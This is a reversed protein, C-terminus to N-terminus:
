QSPLPWAKRARIAQDIRCSGEIQALMRRVRSVPHQPFEHDYRPDDPNWNGGIVPKEAEVRLTVEGTGLMRDFLLADRVGTTGLERCHVLFLIVFDKFPISLSGVYTMGHPAQAGKRIMRITPCGDVSVLSTEVLKVDTGSLGDVVAARLQDLSVIKSHKNRVRISKLVFDGETTSQWREEGNSAGDVELGRTDFSVGDLSPAERRRCWDFIGM